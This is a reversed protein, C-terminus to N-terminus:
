QNDAHYAATSSGLLKGLVRAHGPQMVSSLLMCRSCPPWTRTPTQMDRPRTVGRCRPPRPGSGCYQDRWKKHLQEEQHICVAVGETHQTPPNTLTFLDLSKKLKYIFWLGYWCWVNLTHNYEFRGWLNFPLFQSMKLKNVREEMPGCMPGYMPGYKISSM